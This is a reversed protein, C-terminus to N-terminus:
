VDVLLSGRRIGHPSRRDGRVTPRASGRLRTVALAALLFALILVAVAIWEFARSIETM